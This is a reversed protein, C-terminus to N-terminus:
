DGIINAQGKAADSGGTRRRTTGGKPSTDLAPAASSPKPQADARAKMEAGRSPARKMPQKKILGHEALHNQVPRPFTTPDAVKERAEAEESQPVQEIMKEMGRMLHKEHPKDLDVVYGAGGRANLRTVEPSLIARPWLLTKGHRVRWLGSMKSINLNLIAM